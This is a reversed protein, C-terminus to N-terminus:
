RLAAILAHAAAPEVTVPLTLISAGWLDAQPTPTVPLDPRLGALMPQLSPYWCTVGQDIVRRLLGDRWAPDVLVPYKWTVAGPPQHITRVRRDDRYVAFHADYLAAIRARAAMNNPLADLARLHARWADPKLRYHITPAYLAYFAPYLATVGPTLREYRHLAWYLENWGDILDRLPPSHYPIAPLRETLAAALGADDTVLAGGGGADVIKETGFSFVSADGWSGAPQGDSVAGVALAADEIVFAGRERAWACIARMPAPNGYLHCPILAAPPEAAMGSTAAALTEPTINGTLPDIDVLVPIAGARLAAWLVVYCTNAPILVPRGAAGIIGLVEVIATGARGYLVAHARGTLACLRERVRNQASHPNDMRPFPM